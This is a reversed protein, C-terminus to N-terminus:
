NEPMKKFSLIIMGVGFILFMVSSWKNVNSPANSTLNYVFLIVGIVTFFLGIVFRLDFIKSNM